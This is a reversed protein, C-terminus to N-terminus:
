TLTFSLHDLNNSWQSRERTIMASVNRVISNNIPCQCNALTLHTIDVWDPIHSTELWRHSISLCVCLHKFPIQTYRVVILLSNKYVQWTLVWLNYYHLNTMQCSFYCNGQPYQREDNSLTVFVMNWRPCTRLMTPILSNMFVHSRVVISRVRVKLRLLLIIHMHNPLTKGFHM